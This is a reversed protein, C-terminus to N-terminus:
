LVALAQLAKEPYNHCTMLSVAAVGHQNLSIADFIGEVLWIEKQDTLAQAARSWWQGAYRGGFNAKRDFRELQDILREWYTGGPLSFRM